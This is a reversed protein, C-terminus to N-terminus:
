EDDTGEDDIVYQDYVKSSVYGALTMLMNNLRNQIRVSGCCVVLIKAYEYLSPECKCELVDSFDKYFKETYQTDSSLCLCIPLDDTIDGVTDIDLWRDKGPESYLEIFTKLSISKGDIQKDLEDNTLQDSDIILNNGLSIIM